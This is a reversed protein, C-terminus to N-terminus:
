SKINSYLLKYIETYIDLESKTKRRGFKFLSTFFGDVKKIDFPSDERYFSEEFFHWFYDHHDGAINFKINEKNFDEIVKNWCWNFHNIKDKEEKIVDAGLYTNDVLYYIFDFFLESNETQINNAKFWLRIDRDAIPEGIYRLFEYPTYKRKAMHCFVM